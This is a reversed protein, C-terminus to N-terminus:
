EVDDGLRRSGRGCEGAHDVGFGRSVVFRGAVADSDEKASSDRVM